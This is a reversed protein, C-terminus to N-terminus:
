LSFARQASSQFPTRWGVHREGTRHALSHLREARAERRVGARLPHSLLVRAM